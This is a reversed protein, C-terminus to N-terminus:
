GEIARHKWGRQTMAACTIAGNDDTLLRVWGHSALFFLPRQLSGPGCAFELCLAEVGIWDSQGATLGALALLLECYVTYQEKRVVPTPRTDEYTLTRKM